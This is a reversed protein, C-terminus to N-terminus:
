RNKELDMGFIRKSSKQWKPNAIWLTLIENKEGLQEKKQNLKDKM